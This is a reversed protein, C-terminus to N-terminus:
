PVCVPCPDPTPCNPGICDTPTPGPPGVTCQRPQPCPGRPAKPPGPSPGIPPGEFFGGGQCAIKLSGDEGKGPFFMGLPNTIPRTARVFFWNNPVNEPSVESMDQPSMRANPPFVKVDARDIPYMSSVVNSKLESNIITTAVDEWGTPYPYQDEPMRPGEVQLYRSAAWVAECLTQQASYAIFLSWMGIIILAFVPLVAIFQVLTAGRRDDRWRAFLLRLDNTV